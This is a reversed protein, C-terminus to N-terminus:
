SAALHDSLWDLEASVALFVLLFFLFSKGRVRYCLVSVLSRGVEHFTACIMTIWFGPLGASSATDNL